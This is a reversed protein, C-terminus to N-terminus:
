VANVVAVVGFVDGVDVWGGRGWAGAQEEIGNLVFGRKVLGIVVISWLM